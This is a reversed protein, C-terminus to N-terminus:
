SYLNKAKSSKNSSANLNFHLEINVDINLRRENQQIDFSANNINNEILQLLEHANDDEVIQEVRIYKTKKSAFRALVIEDLMFKDSMYALTNHISRMKKDIMQKQKIYDVDVILDRLFTTNLNINQQEAVLSKCRTFIRQTNSAKYSKLQDASLEISSADDVDIHRKILMDINHDLREVHSELSRSFTENDISVNHTVDDIVINNTLISLVLEYISDSMTSESYNVRVANAIIEANRQKQEHELQLASALKDDTLAILKLAKDIDINLIESYQSVVNQLDDINKVADFNLM